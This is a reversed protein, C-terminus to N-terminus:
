EEAEEEFKITTPPAAGPGTIDLREECRGCYRWHWGLGNDHWIAQPRHGQEACRAHLAKIAPLYVDRNYDSMAAAQYASREKEIRRKEARIDM